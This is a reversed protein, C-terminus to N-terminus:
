LSFFSSSRSLSQSFRFSLLFKSIWFSAFSLSIERQLKHLNQLKSCSFSNASLCFACKGSVDGRHTKGGSQKRIRHSLQTEEQATYLWFHFRLRPWIKTSVKSASILFSQLFNSPRAFIFNVSFSLFFKRSAVM